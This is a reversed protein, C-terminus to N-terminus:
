AAQEAREKLKENMMEFGRRTHTDLQKWLLGALIGSFNERHIFRTRNPAVQIMEFIHEGDFLGKIFLHGLWRFEVNREYVKCVPKFTMPKKGDPRITVSFQRGPEPSGTLSLLFPNWEPYQDFNTLIDWVKSVPADIEIETYLSKM